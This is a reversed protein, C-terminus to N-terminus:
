VDACQPRLDATYQDRFILSRKATATYGCLPLGGRFRSPWLIPLSNRRVPKEISALWPTFCDWFWGCKNESDTGLRHGKKVGTRGLLPVAFPPRSFYIVFYM